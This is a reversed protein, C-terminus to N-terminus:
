MSGFLLYEMLYELNKSIKQVDGLKENAMWIMGVTPKSTDLGFDCLCNTLCTDVKPGRSSCRMCQLSLILKVARLSEM